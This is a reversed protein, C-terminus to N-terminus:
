RFSRHCRRSEAYELLCDCSDQLFQLRQSRNETAPVQRPLLRFTPFASANVLGTKFPCIRPRCLCAVRNRAAETVTPVEQFFCLEAGVARRPRASRPAGVAPSRESCAGSNPPDPYLGHPPPAPVPACVGAHVCPQMGAVHLCRSRRGGPRSTVSCGALAGCLQSRTVAKTNTKTNSVPAPCAPFLM